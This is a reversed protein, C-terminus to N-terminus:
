GYVVTGLAAIQFAMDAVEADINDERIAQAAQTNPYGHRIDTLAATMASAFVKYMTGDHKDEIDASCAGNTEVPYRIVNAWHNIGGETATILLDTGNM